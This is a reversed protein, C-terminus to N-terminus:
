QTGGLYIHLKPAIGLKMAKWGEKTYAGVVYDLLPQPIDRRPPSTPHGYELTDLAWGHFSIEVLWSEFSTGDLSM